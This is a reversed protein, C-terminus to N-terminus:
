FFGKRNDKLGVKSWEVVMKEGNDGYMITANETMTDFNAMLPAIYQTAALRSHTQDGVYCFGLFVNYFM